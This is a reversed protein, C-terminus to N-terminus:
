LINQFVDKTKPDKINNMKEISSNLIYLDGTDLSLNQGM